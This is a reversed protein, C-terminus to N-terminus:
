LFAVCRSLYRLSDLLALGGAHFSAFITCTLGAEVVTATSVAARLEEWANPKRLHLAGPGKALQSNHPQVKCNKVTLAFHKITPITTLCGEKYRQRLQM